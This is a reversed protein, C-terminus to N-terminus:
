KHRVADPSHRHERAYNLYIGQRHVRYIRNTLLDLQQLLHM